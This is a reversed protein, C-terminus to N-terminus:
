AGEGFLALLDAKNKAGSHDIGLGDLLGRLEANTLSKLETEGSSDEVPESDSEAEPEDGEVVMAVREDLLHQVFPAVRPDSADYEGPPIRGGVNDALGWWQTLKVRM